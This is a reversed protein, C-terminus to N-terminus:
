KMRKFVSGLFRDQLKEKLKLITQYTSHISDTLCVLMIVVCINILTTGIINMYVTLTLTKNDLLESFNRYFTFVTFIQNTTYYMFCYYKLSEEIEKYWDLYSRFYSEVSDNQVSQCHNNFDEVIIQVTFIAIMWLLIQYAANLSNYAIYGFIWSNSKTSLIEDNFIPITSGFFFLIMATFM